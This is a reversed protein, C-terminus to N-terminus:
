AHSTQWDLNMFYCSQGVTINFGIPCESGEKPLECLTQTTGTCAETQQIFTSRSINRFRWNTIIMCDKDTFKPVIEEVKCELEEIQNNCTEGTWGDLCEIKGDIKSCTYHGSCNDRPECYTSCTKGFYNDECTCNFTDNESYCTGNNQCPNPDCMDVDTEIECRDGKFGDPCCCYFEDAETGNQVCTANNLCAKTTETPRIMDFAREFCPGGRAPTFTLVQSSNNLEIQGNMSNYESMNDSSMRMFLVTGKNEIVTGMFQQTNNISYDDLWYILQGTPKTNLLNMSEINWQVNFNQGDCDYSAVWPGLWGTFGGEPIEVGTDVLCEYPKGNWTLCNPDTWNALCLKSGDVACAYHGECDDRPECMVSCNLGYYGDVCECEFNSGNVICRAAEPCPNSYCPDLNQCYTGNYGELCDCIYGDNTDNSPVCTANNECLNNDCVDVTTADTMTTVDVTTIDAM